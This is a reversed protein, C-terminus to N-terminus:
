RDLEEYKLEIVREFFKKVRGDIYFPDFETGVIRRAIERDLSNYLAQGYRIEPHLKVVQHATYALKEIYEKVVKDKDM